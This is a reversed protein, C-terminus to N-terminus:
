CRAAADDLVAAFSATLARREFRNIYSRDARFRSRGARLDDLLTSLADGIAALDHPPVATGLGTRDLLETLTGPEVVALIPKELSLYEYFKAPVHARATGGRQLLLLVDSRRALEVAAHQPLFGHVRVVGLAELKRISARRSPDIDGALNVSLGRALDPRRDLLHELAEFLESGTDGYVTGLHTLALQSPDPTGSASTAFDEPDYGNTIV